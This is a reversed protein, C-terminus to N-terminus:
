AEVVAKTPAKDVLRATFEVRQGWYMGRTTIRYMPENDLSEPFVERLLARADELSHAAVGHGVFWSESNRVEIRSLWVFAKM